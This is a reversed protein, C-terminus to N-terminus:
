LLGRTVLESELAQAYTFHHAAMGVARAGACNKASDDVFLADGSALGNRDLCLRFIEPAPKLMQEDASVVIDRMLSLVPATERVAEFSARVANTLGFLPVENAHLRVILESTGPVPRSPAAELGNAYAQFVHLHDPTVRRAAQLGDAWSRGRVQEVNWDYFGIVQFTEEMEAEHAFLHELALFPRWQNVVNGLDFIVGTM